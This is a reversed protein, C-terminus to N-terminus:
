RATALPPAASALAPLMRDFDACLRLVDDSRLPRDGYVALQWAGILAAVFDSREPPLAARALRICDGETSADGIAVEYSHVLRSLAGRYLLSLAARREGGLWLERVAAGIDAPLSEPRIDLERVHSPLRAGRSRIADGHVTLWRRATVIAVALVAAGLLWMLWRGGEALWRRLEFWFPDPPPPAPQDRKKFQWTREKRFGGLDPDARVSSAAAEIAAIDARPASPSPATADIAAAAEAAAVSSAAVALMVALFVM